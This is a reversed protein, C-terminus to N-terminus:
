RRATTKQASLSDALEVLRVFEARYGDPDEGRHRRALDATQRWSASGKHESNRLLMGFEAVGAAFGLRASEGALRNRVPITMLRSVDGDPDKYRVKITMLEDANARATESGRQYKLPDVTPLDVQTGAPVIEYLATVSHGAGMEGADKKDDNFDENQLLRKEYGILRYAAVATPNFEVQIKVDKAVTVLTAGAQAILVRRAEHLSDLYNYNGNGTDALKQMTSDKLNDRGVGLVSLSIGRQREEEILRVLDGRSTVGVNFDGDTALIVRNIGSKVYNRAAVDYALQIGSAGNTSGGAELEAIAQHIRERHDGPTAPLVLGSSGAYVVIAVRDRANLTDTFMRLATRVLPLRDPPAMSGSVDLLFVLNRPPTTAADISKTQLGVLALRHAANWPCAALETTVSVPDKSAPPAYDFRFYNILEEIRVADPPPLTGSTLFRRVNSYSATDVDSSFTSLPHDSVRRFGNDDIREYAETNGPASPFRYAQPAIGGAIGGVVGSVASAHAELAPTEGTITVTEELGGVRLEIRVSVPRGHEIRIERANRSFGALDVTLTARGTQAVAFTFKGEKDTVTSLTMGGATKLTVSAGPIVSGSSDVVVGRVIQVSQASYPQALVVAALCGILLMRM